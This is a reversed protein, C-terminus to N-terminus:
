GQVDTAADAAGITADPGPCVEGFANCAVNGSAYLGGIVSGDDRLDRARM